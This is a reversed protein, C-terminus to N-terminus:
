IYDHLTQVALWTCNELLHIVVTSQAAMFMCSCTGRKYSVSDKPVIDRPTQHLKVMHYFSWVIQHSCSDVSGSVTLLSHGKGWDM